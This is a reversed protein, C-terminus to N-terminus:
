GIPATGSRSRPRRKMPGPHNVSGQTRMALFPRPLHCLMDSQGGPDVGAFAREVDGQARAAGPELDVVVRGAVIAQGVPEGAATWSSM